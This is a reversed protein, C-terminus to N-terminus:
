FVLWRFLTIVLLVVRYISKQVNGALRKSAVCVTSWLVSTSSIYMSVVSELIRGSMMYTARNMFVAYPARDMFVAYPAAEVLVALEMVVALIVLYSIIIM